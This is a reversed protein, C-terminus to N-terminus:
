NHSYSIAAKLQLWSTAVVMAVGNHESMSENFESNLVKKPPSSSQTDEENSQMFVKSRQMDSEKLLTLAFENQQRISLNNKIWHDSPCSNHNIMEIEVGANFQADVQDDCITNSCSYSINKSYIL